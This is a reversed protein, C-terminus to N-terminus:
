TGLDSELEKLINTLSAPFSEVEKRVSFAFGDAYDPNPYPDQGVIVVRVDDLSYHLPALIRDVNPIFDSSSILEFAHIIQDEIPDLVPQWSADVGQFIPHTM